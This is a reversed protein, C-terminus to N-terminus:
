ETPLGDCQLAPQMFTKSYGARLKEPLAQLIQSCDSGWASTLHWSLLRGSNTSQGTASRHVRCLTWSVSGWTPEWSVIVYGCTNVGTRTPRTLVADKWTEARTFTCSMRSKRQTLGGGLGDKLFSSYNRPKPIPIRSTSATIALPHLGDPRQEQTHTHRRYGDTRMQGLQLKWIITAISLTRM